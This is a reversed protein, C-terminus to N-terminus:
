EGFFVYEACDIIFDLKGDTIPLSGIKKIEPKIEDKRSKFGKSKRLNNSSYLGLLENITGMCARYSVLKEETISFERRVKDKVEDVDVRPAKSEKSERECRERFECEQCVEMLIDFKKISHSCVFDVIEKSM